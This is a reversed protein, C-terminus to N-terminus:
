RFYYIEEIDRIEDDYQLLGFILSILEAPMVDYYTVPFTKGCMRFTEPCNIVHSSMLFKVTEFYLKYAYSDKVFELVFHGFESTYDLSILEENTLRELRSVYELYQAEEKRQEEEWEEETIEDIQEEEEEDYLLENKTYERFDLDSYLEPDVEKM